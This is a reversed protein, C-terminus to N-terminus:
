DGTRRFVWWMPGDEGAPPHPQDWTAGSTELVDVFEFNGSDTFLRKIDAETWCRMQVTREIVFTNGNEHVDLRYNLGRTGIHHDEREVTWTSTIRVGAQETEWQESIPLSDPSYRTTLQVAYVAGPRLSRAMCDLHARIPEDHQLHGLSNVPNFAGDFPQQYVRSTMDAQEITVRDTLGMEAARDAAYDVMGPELDYGTVHYGCVALAIALRGTGCAPELVREVGGVAHRQFIMQLLNVEEGVDWAFAIDYYRPTAYLPETM